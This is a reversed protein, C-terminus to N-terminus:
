QILDLTGREKEGGEGGGARRLRFCVLFISFQMKIVRSTEAIESPQERNDFRATYLFGIGRRRSEETPIERTRHKELPHGCSYSASSAPENHIPKRFFIAKSSGSCYSPLVIARPPHVSYSARLRSSRSVRGSGGEMRSKVIRVRVARIDPVKKVSRTSAWHVKSRMTTIIAFISRPIHSRYAFDPFFHLM